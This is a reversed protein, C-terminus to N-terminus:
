NKKKGKITTFSRYNRNEFSDLIFFSFIYLKMVIAHSTVSFKNGKEEFFFFFFITEELENQSPIM